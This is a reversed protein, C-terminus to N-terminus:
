RVVFVLNFLVYSELNLSLRTIKLHTGANFNIKYIYMHIYTHQIYTHIYKPRAQSTPSRQLICTYTQRDRLKCVTM